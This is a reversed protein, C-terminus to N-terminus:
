LAMCALLTAILVVITAFSIDSRSASSVADADCTTDAGSADDGVANTTGVVCATCVKTKVYENVACKTKACATDSGSADGDKAITTGAACATCANTKVYENVACKTKACATDAGSADGDKAITTGAACATCANTKVYKNAACLTATCGGTVAATTPTPTGTRGAKCTCTGSGAVAVTGCSPTCGSVISGIPSSGGYTCSTPTEAAINSISLGGAAYFNSESMAIRGSSTASPSAVSLYNGADVKCDDITDSGAASTSKVVCATPTDATTSDVATVSGAQYKNAPTQAITGATGTSGAVSLYYGASVKCDAILGSGAVSATYVTASNTPCATCGKTVIALEENKADTPAGYHTSACRCTGGVAVANTGSGCSPTCGALANGPQVTTGAFPCVLAAAAAITAATDQSTGSKGPAYRNALIQTVSLSGIDSTSTSQTDIYFGPQVDCDAVTGTTTASVGASASGAGVAYATQVYQDVTCLTCGGTPSATTATPNGFHTSRCVCTGGLAQYVRTFSQAANGTSTLDIAGGGSTLSVQFDNTTKGVVFYTKGSILGGIVAGGGGIYTIQDTNVLGHAASTIKETSIAVGSTPIVLTAGCSPTCDALADSGAASTGVHPCLLRTATVASSGQQSASEGGVAYYNATSTSIVLGTVDSSSTSKTAIYFGAKVTCAALNAAGGSASESNTPCATCGKTAVAATADSADLPSGYYNPACICTGRANLANVTTAGCAPVCDEILSASALSAGGFPCALKTATVTAPTQQTAQEGGAGYFNAPIASIVLSTVDSGSTSKTSIYFGAKVKCASLATSGVIAASNAPCATCGKTAVAATADSADLPTGYHTTACKSTGASAVVGVSSAAAAATCDTLLTSGQASTGAFPCATCGGTAAANTPTPAGYYNAKCVCSAGSKIANVSAAGCGGANSTHAPTCETLLSKGAAATTGGYPCVTRGANTATVQQDVAIGGAGYYNATAAAISLSTTSGYAGSKASIMFTAKVSCQGLVTVGDGDTAVTAVESNTPCAGGAANVNNALDSRGLTTFYQASNGTGTIDIASGGPTASVKFNNTTVDRVFYRVTTVLGTAATTDEVYVVQDGNSLGHAAFTIIDTALSIATTPITLGRVGVYKFHQTATNAGSLAIASGGPKAAVSFTTATLYIAYFNTVDTLGGQAAGGGKDYFIQDDTSLGHAAATTYVNGAISATAIARGAPTLTAIDNSNASITVAAANAPDAAANLVRVTFKGSAVAVVMYTNTTTLGTTAGGYTIMLLDGAIIGHTGTPEIKNDGTTIKGSAVAFTGTAVCGQTAVTATSTPIASVPKGFNTAACVCTGGQKLTKLTGETGCNPTCDSLASKGTAATTGDFPCATLGINTSPTQLDIALGGSAYNGSTAVVVNSSTPATGTGSSKATIYYGANLKCDGMVTSGAVSASNDPCSSATEASFGSTLDNLGPHFKNAPALTCVATTTSDGASLYFGPACLTCSLTVDGLIITNSGGPSVYGNVCKCAIAGTGGPNNETNYTGFAGTCTTAAADGTAAIALLTGLLFLTRSSFMTGSAQKM